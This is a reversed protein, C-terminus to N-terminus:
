TIQTHQTCTEKSQFNQDSHLMYQLQFHSHRSSPLKNQIYSPHFPWDHTEEDRGERGEGEERRRGEGKRGERGRGEGERGEGGREEGGEGERGRWMGEGDGGRM